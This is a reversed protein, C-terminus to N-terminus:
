LARVLNAALLADFHVHHRGKVVQLRKNKPKYQVAEVGSSQYPRSAGRLPYQLLVTQM